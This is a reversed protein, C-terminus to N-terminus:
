SGGTSFGLTWPKLVSGDSGVIGALLELKVQRFRELPRRPKIELMRTSSTYSTTFSVAPPQAEGREASEEKSYSVRIRDTFSAPDANRSFQIRITVDLRVDAEGQVPVSFDVDLPLPPKRSEQAHTAAAFFTLVIALVRGHRPSLAM